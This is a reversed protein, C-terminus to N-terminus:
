WFALITTLSYKPYQYQIEHGIISNTLNLVMLDVLFPAFHTSSIVMELKAFYGMHLASSVKYSCINVYFTMNISCAFKQLGCMASPLGGM